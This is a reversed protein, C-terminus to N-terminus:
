RDLYDLEEVLDTTDPFRLRDELFLQRLEEFRKQIAQQMDIPLESLKQQLTKM